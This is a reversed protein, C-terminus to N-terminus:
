FYPQAMNYRRDYVTIIGTVINVIYSNIRKPMKLVLMASPPTGIM